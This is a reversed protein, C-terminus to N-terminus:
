PTNVAFMCVSKLSLLGSIQDVDITLEAFACPTGTTVAFCISSQSSPRFPEVKWFMAHFEFTRLKVTDTAAPAFPSQVSTGAAFPALGSVLMESFLTATGYVVCVM